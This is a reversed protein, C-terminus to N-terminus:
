QKTAVHIYVKQKRSGNRGVWRGIKWTVSDSLVGTGTGACKKKQIVLAWTHGLKRGDTPRLRFAIFQVDDNDEERELVGDIEFNMKRLRRAIKILIEDGIEFPMKFVLDILNPNVMEGVEECDEM